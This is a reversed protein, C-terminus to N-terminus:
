IFKTCLYENNRIFNQRVFLFDYSQLRKEAYGIVPLHTARNHQALVIFL